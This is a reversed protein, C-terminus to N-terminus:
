LAVGSGVLRSVIRQATAEGNAVENIVIAGPEINVTRGIASAGGAIATGLGQAGRQAGNVPGTLGLATGTGFPDSVASLRPPAGFGDIVQRSLGASALRVGGGLSNIGNALGLGVFEGIRRFVVSPSKIGLAKRIAKQMAKAISVMLDEIARQQGKLGALFGNAAQKGADFLRDASDTGFKKAAKELDAQARNLERLQATSANTLQQALDAGEQPGLGILQSIISRSLGRKALAEIQANFRRIRSASQEVQTTLDGVVDVRLRKLNSASLSDKLKQIRDNVRDFLTNLGFSQLASSTTNAAFENAAKIRDALAERQSALRELETQTARVYRILNDDRRTKQGKFADTILKVLKDATQRIAPIEATMGNVFGQGVFRGIEYFVKSPSSIGLLNKAGSIADGVVGKAADVVAGAASKIGNILGRIMDRGVSVFQSIMGKIANVARGPLAKLTNVVDTVIQITKRIIADRTRAFVNGLDLIIRQTAAVARDPASRFFGVVADIMSSVTSTVSNYLGTFFGTVGNVFQRVGDIVDFTAQVFGELVAIIGEIIPVVVEIAVWKVVEAGFQIVPGLLQLLWGVLPALATVLDAVVPIVPLLANLVAIFADVIPQLIPLLQSVFQSILPILAEVIQTVAPALALFVPILADTIQAILPTLQIAIDGFATALALLLPAFASIIPGLTQGLMVVLPTLATVLVLFADTLPRIVPLLATTLAQIVPMLATAVADLVPALALGLNAILEGILPLVPALATALGSIADGIAELAGSAVIADLGSLLAKVLASIGPMLELITDGLTDIVAGVVPGIATFLPAIAAAIRGVQTLLEGFLPGFQKAIEGITSFIQRFAQQGEASKAFDEISQTITQLNNLLGASADDGAKFVAGITGGINGIIDGLQRFRDVANQVWVVARGSEAAGTLFDGFRKLSGEIGDAVDKGFASSVADAIKLIGSVVPGTADALGSVSLGAADLVTKINTVGSASRIYGLANDAARGWQRGINTLGKTLPGSLARATRSIDGDLQGFFAGSVSQRLRDFAPRLTRVERAVKVLAPPLNALSKEFKEESDLLAKEISDSLGLTALQLGGLAAKFGLVAAPAAALLGVTPALAAALAGVATAAGAAAIGIAGIGLVVASAKGFSSFVKSLGSLSRQLARGDVDPNVRVDLSPPRHARVQADFGSFDPEVGITVTAGALAAQVAAVFAARDVEPTVNIEVDSLRDQVDRVARRFNTTDATVELTVPNMRRIFANLQREMRRAGDRAAQDLAREIRDQLRGLGSSVGDEDLEITISGTGLDEDAM